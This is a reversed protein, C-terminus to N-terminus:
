KLNKHAVGCCHFNLCSFSHLIIYAYSCITITFLVFLVKRLRVNLSTFVNFGNILYFLFMIFESVFSTTSLDCNKGIVNVKNHYDYIRSDSSMFMIITHSVTLKHYTLSTM